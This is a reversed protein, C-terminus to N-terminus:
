KVYYAFLYQSPSALTNSNVYVKSSIKPRIVNNKIQQTPSLPSLQVLDKQPSSVKKNKKEQKELIFKPVSRKQKPEKNEQLIPNSRRYKNM